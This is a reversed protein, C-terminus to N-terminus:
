LGSLWSWASWAAGGRQCQHHRHPQLCPLSLRLPQPQRHHPPHHPPWRSANRPPLSALFGTAASIVFPPNLKSIGIPFLIWKSVFISATLKFSTQITPPSRSLNYSQIKKVQHLSPRRSHNEGGESCQHQVWQEGGSKKLIHLSKPSVRNM